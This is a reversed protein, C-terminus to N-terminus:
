TSVVSRLVMWRNRLFSGSFPGDSDIAQEPSKSLTIELHQLNKLEELSSSNLLPGRSPRTITIAIRKLNKPFWKFLDPEVISDDHAPDGGGSIACYSARNGFLSSDVSDLCIAAEHFAEMIKPFIWGSELQVGWWSCEGDQLAPYGYKTRGYEGRFCTEFSVRDLISVDWDPWTGDLCNPHIPYFRFHEVCSVRRLLHVLYQTVPSEKDLEERGPGWRDYAGLTVLGLDMGCITITHDFWRTYKPIESMAELAPIRHNYGVFPTRSLVNVFVRILTESDFWRHAVLRCSLITRICKKSVRDFRETIPRQPDWLYTFVYDLIEQPLKEMIPRL